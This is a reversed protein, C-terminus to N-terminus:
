LDPGFTGPLLYGVFMSVFVIRILTLLSSTIGEAMLLVHWRLATIVRVAVILLCALLIWLLNLDRWILVIADFDIALSIYGLLVFALLFRGVFILIRMMGRTFVPMEGPFSVM